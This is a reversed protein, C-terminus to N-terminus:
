AGDQGLILGSTPVGTGATVLVHEVDSVQNASSGRIQRVGEAIGNMGHIYAEGLQGGHTNVPLHGDLEIGGDAIFDKAEGPGCFGLEELQVLVFPTFHDYLMAAQVDAPGIGAAAWLQRAVLGLEPLGTLDDRYYSTMVYQDAGAGQAAARIVAPRNPLDRAREVSTVVVAVGGDSEQCCDLLRLPEVIWRSAQHEALTIPRGHFWARPNTAAHRRDAVTVRGLDESTAGSAHLYRQAFMAVWGAPTCLGSPVTWSADVRDATAPTFRGFRHGSRENFARYCVV